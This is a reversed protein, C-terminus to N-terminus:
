RPTCSAPTAAGVARDPGAGERRARRLHAAPASRPGRHGGPAVPGGRAAREDHEFAEIMGDATTGVVHLGDGLRDIAQHHSCAGHVVTADFVRALRSDPSLTIENLPGITGAPPKPFGPASHAQLDTRGTIHQQLTGGLAVNVVQLGRCIAVTPVQMEVAIQVLTIEFRDEIKPAPYDHPGQRSGYLDANVDPGGILLLGDAHGLLRRAAEENLERPAVVLPEGDARHVAELFKVGAYAVPHRSAVGARALRGPIIIRATMTGAYLDTGCREGGTRGTGARVSRRHVAEVVVGAEHHRQGFAEHGVAQGLARCEPGRGGGFRECGLQSRRDGLAAQADGLGEPAEVGGDGRGRHGEVAGAEQGEDRGCRRRGAREEVGHDARRRERALAPQLGGARDM